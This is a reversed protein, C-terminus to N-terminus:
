MNGQYTSEVSSARGMDTEMDEAFIVGPFKGHLSPNTVRKKEGTVDVELDRWIPFESIKSSEGKLGSRM